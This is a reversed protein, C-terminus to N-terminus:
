QLLDQLKTASDLSTKIDINPMMAQPFLMSHIFTSPSGDAFRQFVSDLVAQPQGNSNGEAGFFTDMFASAALQMHLPHKSLGLVNYADHRFMCAWGPCISTPLLVNFILGSFDDICGNLPGNM